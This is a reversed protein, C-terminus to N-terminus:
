TKLWFNGYGMSANKGVNLWQGTNLFLGLTKANKLNITFQGILGGSQKSSRSKASYREDAKYTISQELLVVSEAMAKLARFDAQIKEGTTFYQMLDVRRIIAMLLRDVALQKANAANGSARYPTLFQLTVADPMVVDPMKVPPQAAILKNDQVLNFQSGDPLEQHIGVLQLKSRKKGLGTHAALMMAAAIVPFKQNSSGCLVISQRVTEGAEYVSKTEENFQFVHPPPITTYKRMIESDPPRVGRFLQPYDCDHLYFCQECETDPSVCARQKLAKGLVSHWLVGPQAPMELAATVTFTFHYKSLPLHIM